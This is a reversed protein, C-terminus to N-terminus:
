LGGDSDDEVAAALRCHCLRDGNVKSSASPVPPPVCSSCDTLAPCAAGSGLAAVVVQRTRCQQPNSQCPSCRSFPGFESVVCDVNASALSASVLNILISSASASSSQADQIRVQLLPGAVAAEPIAVSQTTFGGNNSSGFVILTSWTVGVLVQVQFTEPGSTRANVFLTGNRVGNVNTFTYYQTTLHPTGTGTEILTHYQGDVSFVNSLPEPLSPSYLSPFVTGVSFSRAVYGVNLRPGCPYEGGKYESGCRDGAYFYRTGSIIRRLPVNRIRITVFNNPQWQNRSVIYQLLTSVDISLEDHMYLSETVTRTM